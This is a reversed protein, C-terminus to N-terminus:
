GDGTAVFDAYFLFPTWNELLSLKILFMVGFREHYIYKYIGVSLSIKIELIIVKQTLPERATPGEARADLKTRHTFSGFVSIFLFQEM